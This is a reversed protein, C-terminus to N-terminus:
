KSVPHFVLRPGHTTASIHDYAEFSLPGDRTVDMTQLVRAVVLMLERVALAKGLCGRPGVSFPNFAPRLADARLPDFRDPKQFYAENRQIAYLSVGVDLGAPIFEGDVVAGGDLAERWLASGAPPHLRLSEDICARLFTCESLSPGGKLSTGAPFKARVEETALKLSDQNEALQYFIAALAAATTDTGAFMLTTSESALESTTLTAGTQSDKSQRLQAFVSSDVAGDKESDGKVKRRVVDNVFKIILSRAAIAKKFVMRDLPRWKLWGAQYLTSVRANSAHMAGVIGRSEPLNILDYNLGFIAEAMLDFTLM